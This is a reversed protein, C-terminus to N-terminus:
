IRTIAFSRGETTDVTLYSIRWDNEVCFEHVAEIVGYRYGEVWNGITYDHGAIM